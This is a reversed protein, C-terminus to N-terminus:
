QMMMAMLTAGKMAQRGISVAMVCAQLPFRPNSSPLDANSSLLGAEIRAKSKTNRQQVHRREEVSMMVRIYQASDSMTRTMAAIVKKM